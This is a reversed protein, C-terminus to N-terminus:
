LRRFLGVSSALEETEQLNPSTWNPGCFSSCAAKKFPLGQLAVPPAPTQLGANRGPGRHVSGGLCTKWEGAWFDADVTMLCWSNSLLMVCNILVLSWFTHKHPGALEAIHRRRRLLQLAKCQCKPTPLSLPSLDTHECFISVLHCM